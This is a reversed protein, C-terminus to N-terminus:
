LPIYMIDSCEARDFFTMVLFVIEAFYVFGNLAGVKRSSWFFANLVRLKKFKLCIM